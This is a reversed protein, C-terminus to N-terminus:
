RAPFWRLRINPIRIRHALGAKAGAELLNTWKELARILRRVRIGLYNPQYNELRIIAQRIMRVPGKVEGLDSFLRCAAALQVLGELFPRHEEETRQYFDELSEHSEFFRGANFSRIGKRLRPDM